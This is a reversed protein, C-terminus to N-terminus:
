LMVIPFICELTTVFRDVQGSAGTASQATTQFSYTIARTIGILTLVALRIGASRTMYQFLGFTSNAQLSSSQASFFTRLLFYSSIMEILAISTFYGIHMHDIFPVRRSSKDLIDQVRGVSIAFRFVTIILIMTWFLIMFTRRERSGLILILIQYSYFSM